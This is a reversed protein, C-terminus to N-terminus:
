LVAQCAQPLPSDRQDTEPPDAGPLLHGLLVRTTTPSPMMWGRKNCRVWCYCGTYQRGANCCECARAFLGLTSWTSHWTCICCQKVPKRVQRSSPHSVTSGIILGRLLKERGKKGEWHGPWRRIARFAPLWLKAMGPWIPYQLLSREGPALVAQLCSSDGAAGSAVGGSCRPKQTNKHTHTHIHTNTHTGTHTNIKWNPESAYINWESIM